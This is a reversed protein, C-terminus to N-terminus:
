RRARDQGRRGQRDKGVLCCARSCNGAKAPVTEALSHWTRKVEPAIALPRATRFRALPSPEARCDALRNGLLVARTSAALLKRRDLYDMWDLDASVFVDAALGAEVQKALRSSADFSSACEPPSRRHDLRGVKPLVDSLSAAHRTIPSPSAENGAPAIVPILVALLVLLARFIRFM